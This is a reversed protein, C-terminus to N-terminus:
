GSRAFATRPRHIRLFLRVLFGSCNVRPNLLVSLIAGGLYKSVLVHFHFFEYMYLLRRFLELKKINFLLDINCIPLFLTTTNTTCFRKVYVCKKSTKSLFGLCILCFREILGVKASAAQKRNKLPPQISWLGIHTFWCNRIEFSETPVEFRGKWYLPSSPFPLTGWCLSSTGWCIFQHGVVLSSRAVPRPAPFTLSKM